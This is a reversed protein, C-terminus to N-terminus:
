TGALDAPFPLLNTKAAARWLQKDFTAFTVPRGLLDQWALATALHVADFGRLPYHLILRIARETVENTLALSAFDPWQELFIKLYEQATEPELARLRSLKMLAAPVEVRSIQATGVYQAQAVARLVEATGQERVYIKVLASSDLYLIM